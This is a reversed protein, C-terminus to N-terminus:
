VKERWTSLDMSQYMRSSQVCERYWSTLIDDLEIYLASIVIEGEHCQYLFFELTKIAAIKDLFMERAFVVKRSEFVKSPHALRMANINMNHMAQMFQVPVDQMSAGLCASSRSLRSFGIANVIGSLMRDGIEMSSM